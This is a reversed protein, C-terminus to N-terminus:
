KRVDSSGQSTYATLVDTAAREYLRLINIDNAVIARLGELGKKGTGLLIAWLGNATVGLLLESLVSADM